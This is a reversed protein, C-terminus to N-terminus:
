YFCRILLFQQSELIGQIPSYQMEGVPPPHSSDVLVTVGFRFFSREQTIIEVLVLEPAPGLRTGLYRCRAALLPGKNQLFNCGNM